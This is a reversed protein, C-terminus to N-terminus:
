PLLDSFRVGPSRAGIHGITRSAAKAGLNGCEQPPLGVSLGYLVGAAFADGAGTTDVPNEVPVPPITFSRNGQLILAGQAGRTLVATECLGRASEAAEEFSDKLTLAMIEKRNAFLIDVHNAVLNMFDAHHREVCRSDSLTFAIKAGSEKAAVVAKEFAAKAEPRDYLYGELLVIEADAVLSEDIDGPGFCANAGLCTNMTREGDPTVLIYSRGTANGTELPPTAYHIGQSQMDHRFVAGFDDAAVKGVFAGRGGFSVFGSLTNAASGGSMEQGPGILTYLEGARAPDILTMTGKKMGNGKQSAIFDDSAPVLVDVIANGVAVLGFRKKVASSAM